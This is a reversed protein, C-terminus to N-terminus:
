PVQGAYNEPSPWPERRNRKSSQTPCFKGDTTSKSLVHVSNFDNLKVVGNDDVLLQMPKLDIHLCGAIEHLAQFPLACAANM